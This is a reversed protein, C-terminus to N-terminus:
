IIKVILISIIVCTLDALLGILLSHKIKKVKISAYYTAIIYITTDTSGAIISSIKGILSDPGHQVLIENLVVDDIETGLATVAAAIHHGGAGRFLHYLHLFAVRAPIQLIIQFLFFAEGGPSTARTLPDSPHASFTKSKGIQHPFGFIQAKWGETAARCSGELPAKHIRLCSLFYAGRSAPRPSIM